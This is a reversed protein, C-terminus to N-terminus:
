GLRDVLDKAEKLGLGTRERILKIAEIKQGQSVLHQVEDSMELARRITAQLGPAPPVIAAEKGIAEVAAKAETLGLRRKERVLKIAEMKGGQALLSAVQRELTDPSETVGAPKDPPPAGLIKKTDRSGSLLRALVVSLVIVLAAIIVYTLEM